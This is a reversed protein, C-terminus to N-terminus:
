RTMTSLLNTVEDSNLPTSSCSTEPADTTANFVTFGSVYFDAAPVVPSKPMCCGRTTQACYAGPWQTWPNNCQKHTM